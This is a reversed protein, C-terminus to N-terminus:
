LSLLYTSNELQSDFTAVQAQLQNLGERMKNEYAVDTVTENFTRFTSRVIILQQKLLQTFTTTGQELREINEHYFQADEDDMTGFLAKSLKGVFNFLGRKHENNGEGGQAIEFLLQRTNRIQHLKQTVVKEFHNCATWNRISMRSCTKDIYQVYQELNFTDYDVAIMPVYVVITWKTTSLTAHGLHEFYLGPSSPYVKMEYDSDGAMRSLTWGTLM